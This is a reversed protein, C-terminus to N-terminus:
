PLLELIIQNSAGFNEPTIFIHDDKIDILGHEKFIEITNSKELLLDYGFNKLETLCVGKSMRLGLMICEEIKQLSSLKEKNPMVSPQMRLIYKERVFEYFEEFRNFGEVRYGNIFSHASVGFGAYEGMSWYNINHRCEYGKIAFNSIEYRNYNLQKLLTYACNYMNVCEDDNSVTLTHNIVVQEYLKTSEELMLMYASIHKVGLSCLSKIDELLMNQTQNPIGILLDASINVFGVKQALKITDIATQKNHRRGIIKLCEDNLSQIGFSIRNIGAMKYAKLKNETTSSPNCEITIEADNEVSFYEYITNITQIIYKEDVFSPTGGGFYITSVSKNKFLGSEAVIQINLYKFYEDIEKKNACKSVFSCYSCKSMCFPIHVYISIKKDM